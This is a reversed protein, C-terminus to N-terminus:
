RPSQPPRTNEQSGAQTPVAQTPVAQEPYAGLARPPPPQPQPAMPHRGSAAAAGPGSLDSAHVSQGPMSNGYPNDAGSTSTHANTNHGASPAYGPADHMGVEARYQPQPMPQPQPYSFGTPYVQGAGYSPPLPPPYHQAYPQPPYAAPQPPPYHQAYPQPLYPSLQPQPYGSYGQMVPQHPHYVPPLAQTSSPNQGPTDVPYQGAGQGPYPGPPQSPHAGSPNGSSSPQNARPQAPTGPMGSAASRLAQHQQSVQRLLGALGQLNKPDRLLERVSPEDLVALLEPCSGISQMVDALNPPVGRAVFFAKATEGLQQIADRALATKHDQVATQQTNATHQLEQVRFDLVSGVLTDVQGRSERLQTGLDRNTATLVNQISSVSGLVLEGFQTYCDGLQRYASAAGTLAVDHHPTLAMTPQPGAHPPTYPKSTAPSGPVQALTDPLPGPKPLTPLEAVVELLEGNNIAMFSATLLVRAGKASYLRIRYKRVRYEAIHLHVRARVWRCAATLLMRQTPKTDIPPASRLAAKLLDPECSEASTAEDEDADDDPVLDDDDLAFINDDSDEQEAEPLGTRPSTAPRELYPLLNDATVEIRAVQLEKDGTRDILCLYAVEEGIKLLEEEVQDLAKFTIDDDTRYM